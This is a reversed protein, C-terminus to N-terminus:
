LLTDRSRVLSAPCAAVVPVPHGARAPVLQVRRARVHVEVHEAVQPVRRAVGHPGPIVLSREAQQLLRLPEPPADGEGLQVARPYLADPILRSSSRYSAVIVRISAPSRSPRWAPRTPSSTSRAARYGNLSSGVLSRM